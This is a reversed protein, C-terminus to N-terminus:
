TKHLKDKMVMINPIDRIIILGVLYLVNAFCVQINEADM